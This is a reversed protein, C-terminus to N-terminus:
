AAGAPRGWPTLRLPQKLEARAPTAGTGRRELRNPRRSGRAMAERLKAAEAMINVVPPPQPASHPM